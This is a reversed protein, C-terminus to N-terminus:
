VLDVSASVTVERGRERDLAQQLATASFRWMDALLEPNGRLQDSDEDIQIAAKNGIQLGDDNVLYAEVRIM